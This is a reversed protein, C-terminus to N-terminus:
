QSGWSKEVELLARTTDEVTKKWDVYEKLGLVERARSVDVGAVPVPPKKEEGEVVRPLRESIEPIARRLHVVADFWAFSAGTILLRKREVQTEPPARLALVHARAVDRVDITLPAAISQPTRDITNSASGGQPLVAQYFLAATSLARIDGKDIKTGPAFPGYVFTPNVTYFM